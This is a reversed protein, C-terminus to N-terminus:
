TVGMIGFRPKLRVGCSNPRGQFELKQPQEFLVTKLRGLLDFDSDRVPRRGNRNRIECNWLTPKGDVNVACGHVQAMDRAPVGKDAGM